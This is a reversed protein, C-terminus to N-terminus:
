TLNLTRIATFLFIITMQSTIHLKTSLAGTNWLIKDDGDKTYVSISATSEESIDIGIYCIVHHWMESFQVDWNWIM